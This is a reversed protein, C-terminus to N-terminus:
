VLLFAKDEKNHKHRRKLLIPSFLPVPEAQFHPPHPSLSSALPSIAWVSYACTFLHIFFVNSCKMDYYKEELLDEMYTGQMEEWIKM